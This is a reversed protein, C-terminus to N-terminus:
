YVDIRKIYIQKTKLRRTKILKLANQAINTFLIIVTLYLSWTEPRTIIAIPITYLPIVIHVKLALHGM